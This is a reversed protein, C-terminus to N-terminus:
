QEVGPALTAAELGNVTGLAAWACSALNMWYVGLGDAGPACRVPALCRMIRM